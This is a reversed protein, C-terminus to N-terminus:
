WSWKIWKQWKGSGTAMQTAMSLLDGLARRTRVNQSKLRHYAALPDLKLEHFVSPSTFLIELAVAQPMSLFRKLIVPNRLAETPNPTDLCQSNSVSRVGQLSTRRSVARPAWASQLLGLGLQSLATLQLKDGPMWQIRLFHQVSHSHLGQERSAWRTVKPLSSRQVLGEGDKCSSSSAEAAQLCASATFENIFMLANM